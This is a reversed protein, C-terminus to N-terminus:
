AGGILEGTLRDAHPHPQPHPADWESGRGRREAAQNGLSLFSDKEKPASSRGSMAKATEPM